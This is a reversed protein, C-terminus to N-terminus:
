SLEELEALSKEDSEEAPISGLLQTHVSKEGPRLRILAADDRVASATPMQPFFDHQTTVLRFSREVVKV